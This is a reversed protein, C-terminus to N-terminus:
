CYIQFFTGTQANSFLFEVLVIILDAARHLPICTFPVAADIRLDQPTGAVLAPSGTPLPLSPVELGAAKQGACQATGSVAALEKVSSNGRALALASGPRRSLTSGAAHLSSCRYFPAKWAIPKHAIDGAAASQRDWFKFTKLASVGAIGGTFLFVGVAQVYWGM